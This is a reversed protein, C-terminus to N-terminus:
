TGIIGIIKGNKDKMPSKHVEILIKQGSANTLWNEYKIDIGNDIIKKDDERNRNAVQKPFLDYDTKGVIDRYQLNFFDLTQKNCGLYTSNRDKYFLMDDLSNIAAILSQQTDKLEKKKQRLQAKLDVLENLLLERSKSENKM